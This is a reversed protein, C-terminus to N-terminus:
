KRGREALRIVNSKKAENGGAVEQLRAEWKLLAERKENLYDHRNYIALVGQLKHGLIREAVVDSVGIEALKTRTTRRLDHAKWQEESGTIEQWHRRVAQSMGRRTIPGGEPKHSSRFLPGTGDGFPKAAQIQALALPCLPVVHETSNKTREPPITWTKASGDIEDWTMAGVEGPRCGTLLILRLALKTTRYLNVTDDAPDTRKWFAKIEDDTLVRDRTPEKAKALRGFPSHAIIGREAAFNMMGVLVGQLRNALIPARDRVGDILLVCDRRTLDKVKRKRWLPLADKEVMRRREPGSPTGELKKQWFEELLDEFTPAEKREAEAKRVEAGPDIGREVKLMAAAAAEHAELMSLAPYRGITFRRDEGDFFYRLIWAKAGTPYVRVFLNDTDQVEYRRSKPALKRVSLDTLGM